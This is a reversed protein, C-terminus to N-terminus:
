KSSGFVRAFRATERQLQELREPPATVLPTLDVKRFPRNAPEAIRMHHDIWAQDAIAAWHLPHDPESCRPNIPIRYAEPNSWTGIIKWDDVLMPSACVMCYDTRIATM